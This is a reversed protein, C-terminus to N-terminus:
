TSFARGDTSTPRSDSESRVVSTSRMPVASEPKSELRTAARRSFPGGADGEEDAFDEGSVGDNLSSNLPGDEFETTRM